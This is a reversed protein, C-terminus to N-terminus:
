PQSETATSRAARPRRRWMMWSGVAAASLPMYILVYRLLASLSGESLHIGANMRERRPVSVLATRNFLWALSNEVFVRNGYQSADLLAENRVLNSSGVVVSRVPAGHAARLENAFALILPEQTRATVEPHRLDLLTHARASTTLLPTASSGPTPALPTAASLLVRADFRAADTSLGQTIPHNLSRAFFSEGMGSPLRLQPDSEVVFGATANVGVRSLLGDLGLDVLSGQESVVPDVWLWL